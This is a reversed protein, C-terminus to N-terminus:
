QLTRTTRIAPAASWASPSRIGADVDVAAINAVTTGSTTADPVSSASLQLQAPAENIDTVSIAFTKETSLGAADTSRVRVAYSSKTEFDLTTALKLAAGDITFAANDTSGTGSVLTYTHTDGADPDVSSFQGVTAGSAANEAISSSSLDIDSPAENVNTATINLISEFTLGGADTSRVRVSYSSKTEFNLSSGLRLENGAIQFLANDTDGQGTVLSYTHTDGVDADNSVLTGVVTGVAENEALTSNSLQIATPPQNTDVVSITFTREFTLGAADTARVRM